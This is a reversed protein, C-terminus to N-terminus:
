HVSEFSSTTYVSGCRRSLAAPDLRPFSIVLVLSHLGSAAEPPRLSSTLSKNLFRGFNTWNWFAALQRIHNMSDTSSSPTDTKRERARKRQTKKTKKAPSELGVLQILEVLEETEQCKVADQSDGGDFYPQTLIQHGATADPPTNPRPQPHPTLPPAAPLSHLSLVNTISWLNGNKKRRRHFSGIRHPHWTRSSPHSRASQKHELHYQLPPFFFPFLLSFIFSLWVSVILRRQRLPQTTSCLQLFWCSGAWKVRTMRSMKTLGHSATTM